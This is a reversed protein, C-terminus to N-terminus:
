DDTLEWNQKARPLAVNVRGSALIAGILIMVPDASAPYVGDSPLASAAETIKAELLTYLEGSVGENPPYEGMLWAQVTREGVNLLDALEAGSLGLITKVAHVMPGTMRRKEAVAEMIETHRKNGIEWAEIFADKIYKKAAADDMELTAEYSQDAIGANRTRAIFGLRAGETDGTNGSATLAANLGIQALRAAEDKEIFQKWNRPTRRAHVLHSREIPEAPGVLWEEVYTEGEITNTVEFVARGLADYGRQEVKDADAFQIFETLAEEMTAAEATISEAHRENPTFLIEM